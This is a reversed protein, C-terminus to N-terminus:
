KALSRALQSRLSLVENELELLKKAQDAYVDVAEDRTDDLTGLIKRLVETRADMGSSELALKVDYLCGRCAHLKKAADVQVTIKPEATPHDEVTVTACRVAIVLEDPLDADEGWFVRDVRVSANLERLFVQEGVRPICPWKRRAVPEDKGDVYFELDTLPSQDTPLM